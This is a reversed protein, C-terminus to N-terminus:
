RSAGGGGSMGGGFGGFGGGGFGGGGRTGGSRGSTLLMLLLLRPHRIAMYIFGIIFIFNMIPNSKRRPQSSHRHSYQPVGTLRTGRDTAIRQAIVAGGSVIATGYQKQNWAPVVYEDLIRGAMADNIVGELGYGVEIRLRNGRQEQTAGLLLIGNGRDKQGIGWREYLRNAFDDIQGGELSPLTVIVVADGTRQQLETLIATLRNEEAAPIVNAFDNVPGHPRLSNLLQDSATASGALLLALLIVKFFRM